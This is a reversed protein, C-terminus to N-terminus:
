IGCLLIFLKQPVIKPITLDVMPKNKARVKDGQHKTSVYAPEAALWGCEEEWCNMAADFDNM